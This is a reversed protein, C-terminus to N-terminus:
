FAGWGTFLILVTRVIIQLDLWLSYNRIYFLDDETNLYMPKEARGTVQWWGTLGQPVEFRKRQWAEYKDVLWPMEPRPGVLSMDGRLINFFQPLEDLSTKRIFRGVKTIRPDDRKKHDVSDSVSIKDANASMSRFKYMTFLRGLEGIRQQRFIVPGASELRIAVAVVLFIPWGLIFALSSIAIDLLRKTLRQSPSLVAERLGVLPIGGFNEISVHFYALDSYDPALRINTVQYQLTDILRGLYAYDPTNLTILVEDIRYQEVLSPLDDVMGLINKDIDQFVSDDPHHKVYGLLHLGTWSYLSITRGVREANVDCGVVVALRKRGVSHGIIRNLGRLILRYLLVFALGLTIFFLAELRSYERYPTVYLVGFFLLCALAHGTVIQRVERWLWASNIPEYVGFIQFALPWLAAAIVYLELPTEIISAPAVTGISARLRLLTAVALAILILVADSGRIFLSYGLGFRRLM